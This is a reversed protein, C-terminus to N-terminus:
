VCASEDRQQTQADDQAMTVPNQMVFNVGGRVATRRRKLAAERSTVRFAGGSQACSPEGAAGVVGAGAVGGAGAAGDFAGSGSVAAVPPAGAVPAAGAVISAAGGFVGGRSGM